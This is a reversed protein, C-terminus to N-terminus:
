ITNLSDLGVKGLFGFDDFVEEIFRSCAESLNVDKDKIM